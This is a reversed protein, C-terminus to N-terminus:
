EIYGLSRFFEETKKLTDKYAEDRNFFGHPADQYLHLDSRVGLDQLKRQFSEATSVPILKDKTGLFVISPPVDKSLRHMPSIDQWYEKVRSHGYGDPGNDYVPNFLALASPIASVASDDSPDDFAKVTATAAAVHGGASGGGAAIRDPDLNFRKANARLWRVASKGDSVCDKPTTGNRSKVRYEACFCAMGLDALHRSQGYFQSPTGGNWGGGFFFVIAPRPSPSEEQPMFAHLSLTVDGVTKYAVMEDPQPKEDKAKKAKSQACLSPSLFSVLLLVISIRKM